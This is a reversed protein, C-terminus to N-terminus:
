FCLSPSIPTTPKQIAIQRKKWSRQRDDQRAAEREEHLLQSMVRNTYRVVKLGELNMLSKAHVLFSSNTHPFELFM